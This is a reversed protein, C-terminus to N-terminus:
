SMGLILSYKTPNLNATHCEFGREILDVTANDQGGLGAQRERQLRIVRNCPLHPNGGFLHHRTHAAHYFGAHDAADARHGIMIDQTVLRITHRHPINGILPHILQAFPDPRQIEDAVAIMARTMQRFPGIIKKGHHM